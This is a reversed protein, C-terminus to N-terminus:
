KENAEKAMFVFLEEISVPSVATHRPLADRRVIAEAGYPSEKKHIIAAADLTSLQEHTCHLIGYEELLRDKEECLLLRGNKLFAVYDCLKELDSVIHSSILIAHSEDRTFDSFLEVVEDRVVPDLGSTAEDLLLLRSNHSLAVAIGLKMKMGRSFDKFQKDTPISLQKCYRQYTGDDWNHFTCRMIKGVHVATLCEPIGVEDMVVGIDEKILHINDTNEKGLITITGSDKHIMDLILKITTSKGAGNEGILGMICGCPLTLNLDDLKFGNFQKTLHKIELANM